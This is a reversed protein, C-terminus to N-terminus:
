VAMVKQELTETTGDGYTLVAKIVHDGETLVVSEGQVPVGDLYWAVSAPPDSSETLSLAFPEGAAYLGEGPNAIANIGADSLTFENENSFTFTVAGSSYAIDAIGYGSQRHSWGMCSPRTDCTFSTASGPGPFLYSGSPKEVYCCPHLVSANIPNKGRWDVWLEAATKGMVINDSKDVHYILLGTEPLGSDWKVGDCCELVYYDNEKTTPLIVADGTRRGRLTWPGSFDLYPAQERWGLILREESTLCPPIVEDANYNGRAMLSFAGMDKTGTNKAYMDPLGLVHCFEHCFTGIGGMNSGSAGRLEPSCCFYDVKVGDFTVDGVSSDFLVANSMTSQYPWIHDSGAGASESHGAYLFFVNEVFGDGDLDYASFDVESDAMRCAEAFAVAAHVEGSTYNSGYYAYSKSVTYPGFVDFVPDFMGYSNDLYYDRVSGVAGNLSYGEQNLMASFSERPSPIRYLLDPFQVLIVLYRGHAPPATRRRAANGRVRAARRVDAAASVEASPMAAERVYGDEGIEVVAGDMTLYHCFEDGNLCLTVVSGDPQTYNFPTPRAPSGSAPFAVLLMAAAIMVILIKRM